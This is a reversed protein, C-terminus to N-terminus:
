QPIFSSFDVSYICETQFRDQLKKLVEEKITAQIDPDSVEQYTYSQVVETVDSQIQGSMTPLKENVTKYDKSSSDLTLSIGLQVYHSTGSGDNKLSVLITDEPSYSALDELSVSPKEEKDELELDLVSAIEKILKNTRTASPMCVFVLLCNLILNVVCIALIIISILNKKM